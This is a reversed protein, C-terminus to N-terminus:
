GPRELVLGFPPAILRERLLPLRRVFRPPGLMLLAALMLATALSLGTAGASPGGVLSSLPSSAPTGVFAAGFRFDHGSLSWAPPARSSVAVATVAFPFGAPGSLPLMWAAQCAAGLGEGLGALACALAVGANVSARPTQLALNSALAQGSLALPQASSPPGGGGIGAVAAPLQRARSRQTLVAYKSPTTHALVPLAAGSAAGLAGAVHLAPPPSLKIGPPGVAAAGEARALTHAAVGQVHALV